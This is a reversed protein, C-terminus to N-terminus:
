TSEAGTRKARLSSVVLVNGPPIEFSAKVMGLIRGGSVLTCQAAQGFVLAMAMDCVVEGTGMMDLDTGQMSRLERLHSALASFKPHPM